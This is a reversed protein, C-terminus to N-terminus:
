ALVTDFLATRVLALARKATERWDTTDDYPAKVLESGVWLRCFLVSDDDGAVPQLTIPQLLQQPTLTAIASLVCKSFHSDHGSELIYTRDAEVTTLLKHCERGRREVREFKLGRIYGTVVTHTIPQPNRDADLTYWNCHHQRNAYIYITGADSHLGLRPKDLTALLKKLLEEQRALAAILQTPETTTMIRINTPNAPTGLGPSPLIFSDAATSASANGDLRKPRNRNPIREIQLRVADSSLLKTPSTSVYTTGDLIGGVLVAGM